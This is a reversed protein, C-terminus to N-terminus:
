PVTVALADSYLRVITGANWSTLNARAEILVFAATAPPVLSPATLSGGAVPITGLLDTRLAAGGSTARWIARVELAGQVPAGGIVVEASWINVSYRSNAPGGLAVEQQNAFWGAVASAGAATFVSRFSATGVAALEGTVRAGAPATGSTIVTGDRATAWGTANTEVSPNTSYNTAVVVTGSSLEASPYPALNYAVDQVVTPVIPPIDLERPLGFVWPVQALLTFEVERGQYKGNASQAERVVFPGSICRVSHLFRRYTDIWPFYTDNGEPEQYSTRTALISPAANETGAWSFDTLDDGEFNGDFYGVPSPGVMLRSGTIWSGIVVETRTAYLRVALRATLAPAAPTTFTLSTPHTPDTSVGAIATSTGSSITGGGSNLWSYSFYVSPGSSAVDIALSVEDGPAAAIELDTTSTINIGANGATPATTWAIRRAPAGGAGAVNSITGVGSTGYVAAWSTDAIPNMARNVAQTVWDTYKTLSRRAPPCDVFFASDSEGCSGGHVGCADPELVNRLWTMGAEMADEGQATMWGRVRVERSGHRYGSVQAGDGNRETVVAARTSDSLGEIALGYLGLFRSTTDPDDPDYWPADAINGFTYDSDREVESVSPCGPDRLWYMPCDSTTAYGYARLSNVVENGGVALFHDFM